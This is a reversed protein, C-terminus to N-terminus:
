KRNGDIINQKASVPRLNELSWCKKFNEDEMSTYPLKSQPVIHDINWKWTSVDYDNWFSIHYAGYNNWNMWSEFQSELHEKLEQISYSLYQLISKNNKSSNNSSLHFWISYSISKRLKFIPDIARRNKRYASLRRSIKNKNLSRYNIDYQRKKDKNKQGYQKDYSKKKEINDKYWQKSNDLLENKNNQYYSLCYNQTYKKNCEICNYLYYETGDKKKKKVFLLIDKDAQCKKCKRIM